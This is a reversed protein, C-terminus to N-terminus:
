VPTFQIVIWTFRPSSGVTITATVTNTSTDIVSVNNTGDNAVYATTGDPTIAVGYSFAQGVHHHRSVTNTSTNIASVNGDGRNTFYSKTGDPTIAVGTPNTESRLLPM